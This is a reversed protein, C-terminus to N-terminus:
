QDSSDHSKIMSPTLEIKATQRSQLRIPLRRGRGGRHSDQLNVFAEQPACHQNGVACIWRKGTLSSTHVEPDIHEAEEWKYNEQDENTLQLIEENKGEKGVNGHSGAKHDNVLINDPYTHGSCGDREWTRSAKNPPSTSLGTGCMACLCAAMTSKGTPSLTLTSASLGCRAQINM